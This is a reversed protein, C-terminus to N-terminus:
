TIIVSLPTMHVGSTSCIMGTLLPLTKLLDAMERSQIDRNDLLNINLDGMIIVDCTGESYIDTIKSGLLSLAIDTDGSPPRYINCIYTKRTHPLSLITWQWELDPCCLNWVSVPTFQYKEHLYMLLSGGGRKKSGLDRDFRAM